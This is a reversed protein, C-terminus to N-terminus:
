QVGSIQLESLSTKIGQISKRLAAYEAGNEDLTNLRSVSAMKVGTLLAVYDKGSLAGGAYSNSLCTLAPTLKEAYGPCLHLIHQALPLARECPLSGFIDSSNITLNYGDKVTLCWALEGDILPSEPALQLLCRFSFLRANVGLLPPTATNVLAYEDTINGAEGRVTHGRFLYIIGVEWADRAGPIVDVDKKAEAIFARVNGSFEALSMARNEAMVPISAIAPNAAAYKQAAPQAKWATFDTQWDAMAVGGIMAVALVAVLVMLLKGM